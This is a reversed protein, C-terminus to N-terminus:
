TVDLAALYGDATGVYAAADDVVLRESAADHEFRFRETGDRDFRVVRTRDGQVDDVTVGGAHAYLGHPRGPVRQRWRETGDVAEFARVTGRDSTYVVRDDLVAPGGANRTGVRASWLEEGTAADLAAVLGSYEAVHVVGDAVTAATPVYNSGDAPDTVYRWRETGDTPDLAVVPYNGDDTATGEVLVFESFVALGDADDLVAGDYEWLTEGTTADICRVLRGGFSRYARGDVVVGGFADGSEVAFRQTGDPAYSYLREGAVDLADDHTGALVGGDATVGAFSLAKLDGGARWVREGGEVREVRFDTGEPWTPWGVAAYAGSDVALLDSVDATAEYRWRETGDLDTAVVDRAWQDEFADTPRDGRDFAGAAVYLEGADDALEPPSAVPAGVDVTWAVMEGTPPERERDDTPEDDTTGDRTTGDTGDPSTTLETPDATTDRETASSDTRTGPAPGSACGALVVSAAALFTRRSPM